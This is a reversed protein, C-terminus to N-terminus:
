SPDSNLEAQIALFDLGDMLQVDVFDVNKGDITCSLEVLTFPVMQAGHRQPATRAQATTLERITVLKGSPLTGLISGDEDVTRNTLKADFAGIIQVTVRMPLQDLQALTMRVGNLTTCSAAMFYPVDSDKYGQETCKRALDIVDSACFPQVAITGEKIQFEKLAM